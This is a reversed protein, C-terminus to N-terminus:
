IKLHKFTSLSALPPDPSQIVTNPNQNPTLSEWLRECNDTAREVTSDVFSVTIVRWTEAAFFSSLRHSAQSFTHHVFNITSELPHPKSRPVRIFYCFNITIELPAARILSVFLSVVWKINEGWFLYLNLLPTPFVFVIQDKKINRVLDKLLNSLITLPLLALVKGEERQALIYLILYM